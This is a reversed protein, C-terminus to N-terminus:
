AMQDYRGVWERPMTTYVYSKGEHDPKPTATAGYMFSDFGLNKTISEVYPLLDNGKEAAAVLSALFPPIFQGPRLNVQGPHLPRM